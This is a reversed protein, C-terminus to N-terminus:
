RIVEDIDDQFMLYSLIELVVARRGENYATAEPSNFVHVSGLVPAMDLVRALVRKNHPQDLFALKFERSIDQPTYKDTVDAMPLESLLKMVRRIDATKPKAQM